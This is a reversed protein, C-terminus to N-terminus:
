EEGLTGTVLLFPIDKGISRLERIADLGSWSPLNFDSLVADFDTALLAARFAERDQVLTHVIQFGSDKLHLLLLELDDASDEVILARLPRTTEAKYEKLAVSKMSTSRCDPHPIQASSNQKTYKNGNTSLWAHINM